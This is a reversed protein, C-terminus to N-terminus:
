DNLRISNLISRFTNSYNFSENEPVVTIFYFLMGNRTQTMYVNNVETRQTVPSRGTLTVYYASRGDVTTRSMGGQQRLYPNNRLVENIYNEADRDMYNSGQYLGALVGRTIGQDGYAGLPAFQVANQGAQQQWNSPVSFSVGSDSFVQMRSSPYPVNDSYRGTNGTSYGGGDSYVQGRGSKYDREIEAMSRARPMSKLRSQLRQFELQTKVPRREAITLFQAERNIAQYRNGPNPHSSLWQPGGGNSQQEITRFVNALDRPDYGADAMIQAGLTDAQSEYERSYKLMFGQAAIAGLQAGAQGGVVAGGLILGLTRLTNGASSNKTAQATAHRLAVHSIEHAMVGAIEGEDRAAEVMGRNVYMPGGPLAFANLDRANIVKFRYDFQPQRLQEPIAAVLREGIRSVYIATEQDNLPPFQRDAERAADNGLKVDDQVKYKNKPVNIRTKQASAALPLLLMTAALTFTTVRNFYHGKNM